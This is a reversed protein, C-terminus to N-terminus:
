KESFPSSFHISFGGVDIRFHLSNYLMMVKGHVNQVRTAVCKINANHSMATSDTLNPKSTRYFSSDELTIIKYSTLFARWFIELM